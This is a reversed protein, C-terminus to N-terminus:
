MQTAMTTADFNGMQLNAAQTLGSFANIFQENNKMSKVQGCM